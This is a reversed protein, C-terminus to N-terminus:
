HTSPFVKQVCSVQSTIETEKQILHSWDQFVAASSLLARSAVIQATIIAEGFGRKTGTHLWSTSEPALDEALRFASFPCFSSHAPLADCHDGHCLWKYSGGHGGKAEGNRAMEEKTPLLLLQPVIPGEAKTLAV